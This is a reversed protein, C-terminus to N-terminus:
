KPFVWIYLFLPERLQMCNPNYHHCALFSPPFMFYDTSIAFSFFGIIVLCIIWEDYLSITTDLIKLFFMMDCSDERGGWVRWLFVDLDKTIEFDPARIDM